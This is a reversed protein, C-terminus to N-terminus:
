GKEGEGKRGKEEEGESGQGMKGALAELRQSLWRLGGEAGKQAEGKWDIERLRAEIADATAKSQAQITEGVKDRVADATRSTTDSATDAIKQAVRATSDKVAGALRQSIGSKDGAAQGDDTTQRRDDEEPEGLDALTIKLPEKDSM